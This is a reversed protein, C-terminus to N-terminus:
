FINKDQDVLQKNLHKM